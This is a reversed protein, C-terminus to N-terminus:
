EITLPTSVAIRWKDWVNNKYLVRSGGNSPHSDCGTSLHIVVKNISICEHERKSKEVIVKPRKGRNGYHRRYAIGVWRAAMNRNHQILMEITEIYISFATRYPFKQSAVERHYGLILSFTMAM